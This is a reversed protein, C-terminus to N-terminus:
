NAETRIGTSLYAAALVAALRIQHKDSKLLALEDPNSIFGCEALVATCPANNMIFVNDSVPMATRDSAGEPLARILEQAKEALERSGETGSYFVQAGRPGPSTYKNQHVSILVADPLSSILELRARQDATKRAKVTKASDPYAIETGDRTKVVGVGFFVAIMELRQSVSLNLDAELTGDSAVAGGDEGGHGPDIILAPRSPAAQPARVTMIPIVSLKLLLVLLVFATAAIFTLYTLTKM